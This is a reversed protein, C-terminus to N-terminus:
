EGKQLAKMKKVEKQVTKDMKSKMEKAEKRTPSKRKICKYNYDALFKGTAELINELLPYFVDNDHHPPVWGPSQALYIAQVQRDQIPIHELSIIPINVLMNDGEDDKWKPKVWVGKICRDMILNYLWNGCDLKEVTRYGADHHADFNYLHLGRWSKFFDYASKHSWGVGVVTDANIIFGKDQLALLFEKPEVDAYKLSTERYLDVQHYRSLWVAESMLLPTEGHGFDWMPDERVFYDSDISILIQEKEEM